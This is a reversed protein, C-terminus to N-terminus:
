QRLHIRDAERNCTICRPILESALKDYSAYVPVGHCEQQLQIVWHTEGCELDDCGHMADLETTTLTKM